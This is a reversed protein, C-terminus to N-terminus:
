VTTTREIESEITSDAKIRYEVIGETQLPVAVGDITHNVVWRKKLGERTWENRVKDNSGSGIASKCWVRFRLETGNTYSKRLHPPLQFCNAIDWTRNKVMKRLPLDPGSWEANAFIKYTELQAFALSPLPAYVGMTVPVDNDTLKELGQKFMYPDFPTTYDGFVQASPLTAGMVADYIIRDSRRGLAMSCQQQRAQRENVSLRTVDYDYISVAADWESSQMEIKDDEPNLVPVADGRTYEQAEISGTRLFYFKDGKIDVPEETTGKLVYGENQYRIITDTAWQDRYWAPVNATM